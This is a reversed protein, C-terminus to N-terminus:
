HCLVPNKIATWFDLEGPMDIVIGRYVLYVGFVLSVYPTIKKIRSRYAIPLFQFGLAFFFLAPITGLGFVFMFLMGSVVGGYSLAGAIALYVLGCPLFGNAVGLIYPHYQFRKGMLTQIANQVKIYYSNLWGWSSTNHYSLQIVFSVILLVGLFISLAKQLHAIFLLSGMLGFLMGLIGYTSARGINYSLGSVIKSLFFDDKTHSFAIALPGCMGICHLSGFLGLTLAIWLM